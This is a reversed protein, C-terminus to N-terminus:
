YSKENLIDGIESIKVTIDKIYCFNYFNKKEIKDIRCHIYSKKIVKDM